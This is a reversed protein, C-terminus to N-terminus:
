LASSDMLRRLEEAEKRERGRSKKGPYLLEYECDMETRGFADVWDEEPATLLDRYHQDCADAETRPREM